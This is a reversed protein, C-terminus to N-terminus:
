NYKNCASTGICKADFKLVIRCSEQLRSAFVGTKRRWRSETHNILGGGLSSFTKILKCQKCSILFNKLLIKKIPKLYNFFKKVHIMKKYSMSILGKKDRTRGEINSHM